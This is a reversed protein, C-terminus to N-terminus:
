EGGETALIEDQRDRECSSCVEGFQNPRECDPCCKVGDDDPAHFAAEDAMCDLCTGNDCNDCAM